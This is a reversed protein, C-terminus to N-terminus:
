VPTIEFDWSLSFHTCVSSFIIIVVEELHDQDAVRTDAFGIKKGSEGLILETELGFGGNTNFEGSAANANIFFDDLGLNPVSSAM